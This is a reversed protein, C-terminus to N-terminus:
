ISARQRQKLTKHISRLFRKVSSETSLAHRTLVKAEKVEFTGQEAVPLYSVNSAVQRTQAEVLQRQKFLTMVIDFNHAALETGIQNADAIVRVDHGAAALREAMRLEGETRAVLLIKGPLPATYEHFVVGKGVHFLSEGCALASSSLVPSALLLSIVLTKVKGNSSEMVNNM